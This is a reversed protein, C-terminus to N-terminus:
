KKKVAITISAQAEAGDDDKVRCTVTYSGKKRWTKKVTAGEGTTGDGFDWVISRIEGDEDEALANITLVGKKQRVSLKDSNIQVVPPENTEVPPPQDDDKVEPARVVVTIEDSAEIDIYKADVRVRYVGPKTFSASIMNGIQQGGNVSWQYNTLTAFDNPVACLMVNFPAVGEVKRPYIHVSYPQASTPQDDCDLHERNWMEFNQEPMTIRAFSAHRKYTINSFFRFGPVSGGMMAYELELTPEFLELQGSFERGKL